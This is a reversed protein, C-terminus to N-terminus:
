TQVHPFFYLTKKKAKMAGDFSNLVAKITNHIEDFKELASNM